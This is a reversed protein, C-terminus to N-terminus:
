TMYEDETNGVWKVHKIFLSYANMKYMPSLEKLVSNWIKSLEESDASNGACYRSRLSDHVNQKMM